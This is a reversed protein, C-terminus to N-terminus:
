CGVKGNWPLLWHFAVATLALAAALSGCVALVEDTAAAKSGRRPTSDVDPWTPPGGGPGTHAGAGAPDAPVLPVTTTTTM